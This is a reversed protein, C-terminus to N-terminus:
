LIDLDDIDHAKDVDKTPSLVDPRRKYYFSALFCYTASHFSDDPQGVSHGYVTQRTRENYESYINLFDMGHPDVWEEWRPYQFVNGRKIASFMDSMVETRHGLHRPTALKPEYMLKKKSKGIWQYQKIKNSGYKRILNDNPWFGGGYDTGVYRVNFDEILEKIEQIQFKPESELGVYRKAWFITFKEPAWPMYGGLTVVTYSSEGSGWDIGMFVPFQSSYPIVERFHTMSLEHNCNKQIDTTTLPRLGSDFSRGLVENYFQVRPYNTQKYVIDNMDIWPVMLQPIRYGEYPDPTKPNPNMSVWKADPDAAYIKKGCKDCILEGKGINDERLINWHWSGPDKPLGHRRCPVVWENQTSLHSWFGELPNDLSKPTGSYLFLKYESHSASEEIVPINDLLIDQVEDLLILDASNGRVRDANLFAFRLIIKSGNIFKKELINALLRKNTYTQLVPSAEISDALRDRSFQKTQISSPAVYLARFMPITSAYTLILNGLLTSKEVQRGALLLRRKSDSNYIPALYRREAFSFPRLKGKVPVKIGYEVFDSPSVTVSGAGLIESRVEEELEVERDMFMSDLEEEIGQPTRVILSARVVAM